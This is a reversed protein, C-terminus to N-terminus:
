KILPAVVLAVLVVTLLGVGIGIAVAMTWMAKGARSILNEAHGYVEQSLFTRETAVQLHYAIEKLTAIDEESFNEGESKNLAQIAGVREMRFASMIPVCAMNRTNFGTYEDVLKHAGERRHLDDEIAIEGSAIVRGAVSNDRDVEIQRETVDTGCKLWVKRSVPDNIFISCREVGLLKEVIRVYFGLLRQDNCSAPYAETLRHKDMLREFTTAAM